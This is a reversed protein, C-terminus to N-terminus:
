LRIGLDHFLNATQTVRALFESYTVQIPNSYQEGTPIFSIAIADPDIAAGHKIMDYTNFFPLREEIPIRAIAELDAMTAIQIEEAIGM